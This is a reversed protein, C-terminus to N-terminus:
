TRRQSISIQMAMLSYCDTDAAGRWRLSTESSFAATAELCSHANGRDLSAGVADALRRTYDVLAVANLMSTEHDRRDDNLAPEVRVLDTLESAPTLARRVCRTRCIRCM